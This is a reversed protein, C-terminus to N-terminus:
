RYRVKLDSLTYIDPENALFDNLSLESLKMLSITIDDPEQLDYPIDPMRNRQEMRELMCSDM